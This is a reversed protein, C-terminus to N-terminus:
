RRFLLAGEEEGPLDAFMHLRVGNEVGAVALGDADAGSLHGADIGAADARLLGHQREFARDSSGVGEEWEGVADFLDGFGAGGGDNLGSAGDAVLFDDFGGVPQAKGHDEGADAMEPMSARTCRLNRDVTTM